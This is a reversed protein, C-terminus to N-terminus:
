GERVAVRRRRRNSRPTADLRDIRTEISEIVFGTPAHEHFPVPRTTDAREDTTVASAGPWRGGPTSVSGRGM